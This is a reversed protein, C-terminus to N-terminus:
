GIAGPSFRPWGLDRESIVTVERPWRIAFAPDDFRAGRAAAPAHFSSMQYLFETDDALTQFGHAVVGPLFLARRNASIFEPKLLLDEPPYGTVALEPVAVIDAGVSEAEAIARIIREANGDVDGVTVNIQALAIRLPKM